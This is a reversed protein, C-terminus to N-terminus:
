AAANDRDGNVIARLDHRMAFNREADSTEANAPQRWLCSPCGAFRGYGRAEPDAVYEGCDEQRLGFTCRFVWTTM